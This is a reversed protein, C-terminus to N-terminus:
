SADAKVGKGFHFIKKGSGEYQAKIRPDIFAFALDVLLMILSFTISLVIVSGRIAAYDRSSISSTMYSGMGPISFVNEIVIAGGLSSAFGNGLTQIIPILGNSLAYKYLITREGLGKARATDIYDARIVELMSSRSQRAMTAVSGLCVCIVPLIWGKWTSIGYVPLWGLRLGFLLMLEMALWFSPISIGILAFLMCLRDAMRNQHTAATVGLPIGVFIEVLMASFSLAFTVPFRATIESWVSKGTMYSEGLDFKIFTQYMFNGLQILFPENLGMTERLAAIDAEKAGTGLIIEAPDGPCFYMITFIIVAVALVVPIMLLLRRVIYKIM